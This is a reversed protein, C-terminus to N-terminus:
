FQAVHWHILMAVARPEHICKVKSYNSPTQHQM